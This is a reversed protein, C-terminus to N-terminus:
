SIEFHDFKDVKLEYSSVRPCLGETRKVLHIQCHLRNTLTRSESFYEVVKAFYEM